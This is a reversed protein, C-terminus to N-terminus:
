KSHIRRHCSACLCVCNGLVLRLEWNDKLYVIHHIVDALTIEGQKACAQCLGHDRSMCVSRFKTWQKSTYFAQRKREEKDDMRKVRYDKHKNEECVCLTGYTIPKGCVCCTRYLM